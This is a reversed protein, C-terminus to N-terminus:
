QFQLTVIMSSSVNGATVTNGSQYYAAKLPIQYVKTMSPDYAVLPYLNAQGFKLVAGNDETLQLGVGTASSASDLAIVGQAEDLIPTAPTFSYGISYLSGPCSLILEFSTTGLTAGQGSFDGVAVTPLPVTVDPTKCTGGGIFTVTKASMQSIRYTVSGVSTMSDVTQRHWVYIPDVIRQQYGPILAVTRKVFRIQTELDIFYVEGAAKTVPVTSAAPQYIGPAVTLPTWQTAVGDVIARWRAIYGLAPSGGLHYWAYTHGEHELTGLRTYPPYGEASVQVTKGAHAPLRTCKWSPLADAAVWPGFVAGVAVEDPLYITTPTFFQYYAGNGGAGRVCDDWIGDAQATHAYLLAAM